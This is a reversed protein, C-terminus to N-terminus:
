RTSQKALWDFLEPTTFAAEISYHDMGEFETYHFDANGAKKLAKNMERSENVPVSPDKGGHFVWIPTDRLKEAFAEFPKDSQAIALIEPSSAPYEFDLPTIRGAVPVAAAFKGPYLIPAHWAGVAGLSWGSVYLRKDDGDFEKVTQDLAAVAQELMKPDWFGKADGQPFVMMFKYNQPNDAIFKRFGEIQSENDSGRAGSGHLYLMVPFKQGVPREKPVYVRYGYTTGGVTVERKLFEVANRNCSFVLSLSLFLVFILTHKM